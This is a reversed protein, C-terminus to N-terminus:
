GCIISNKSQVKFFITKINKNEIFKLIAEPIHEIGFSDFYILENSKVFVVVWHTGTNKSQDLNIVYVGEKLKPLNDKSYIGNFRPEDKFYDIIDFNTLPHPPM